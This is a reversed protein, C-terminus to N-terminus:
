EELKRIFSKPVEVTLTRELQVIHIVINTKSKDRLMEGKYGKLAGKTVEVKDGPELNLDTVEFRLKNTVIKRILEIQEDDITAPIGGFKVFHVAGDLQLAKIFNASTTRVFIYGKFMPEEVQKKRDSWQKWEKIIPLYTEIEVENLRENLKKEARPKTKLAYWKPEEHVPTFKKSSVSIIRGSPNNNM